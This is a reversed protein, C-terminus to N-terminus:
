REPHACRMCRGCRPCIHQPRCNPEPRPPKPEPRPPKAEPPVPPEHHEERPKEGRYNYLEDCDLWQPHAFKPWFPNRHEAKYDACGVTDCCRLYGPKSPKPPKPCTPPKLMEKCFKSTCSM